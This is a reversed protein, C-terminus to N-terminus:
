IIESPLEVQDLYFNLRSNGTDLFEVKEISGHKNHYFVEVYFGQVLYLIVKYKYYRISTIFTGEFYIWQLKKKLPMISFKSKNVVNGIYSIYNKIVICRNM